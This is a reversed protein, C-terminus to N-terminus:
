EVYPGCKPCSAPASCVTFDSCDDKTYLCSKGVLHGLQGCGKGASGCVTYGLCYPKSWSPKCGGFVPKCKIADLQQQCRTWSTSVVEGRGLVLPCAQRDMKIQGGLKNDDCPCKGRGSCSGDNCCCRSEACAKCSPKYGNSCSCSDCGKHPICKGRSQPQTSLSQTPTALTSPPQTPTALTSPPQTPTSTSPPQTPTSTSPPQTPTSTSPPQTPTSTSPPQTPTSTSPPKTPTSTSPPQTPTSTSPPQTPTSTSPPQTPTSTSPPQSPTSTSPPQTPTSTSPPQTPTSTSPPQTPTSTSPPQTPTSTSPPQTPTSLTSPPSPPLPSPPPPSPPPPEPSPPPPEPSPPPPAKCVVFHDCDGTAVCTKGLYGEILSCNAYDKCKTTGYCNVFTTPNCNAVPSCVVNDCQTKCQARKSGTCFDICKLPEGMNNALCGQAKCTGSSCCCKTGTYGYDCSYHLFGGPCKSCDNCASAASALCLVLAAVLLSPSLGRPRM